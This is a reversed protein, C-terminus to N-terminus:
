EYGLPVQGELSAAALIFCLLLLVSFKPIMVGQV